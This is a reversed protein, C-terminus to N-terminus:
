WLEVRGWYPAFTLALADALDPSRVGRKALQRKDEVRMRGDSAVLLQPTSVEVALTDAHECCLAADQQIWEWLKIWLYAKMNAPQMVLGEEEPAREAANVCVVEYGQESLRTAVGAGLGISDVCYYQVGWERGYRIALGVVEMPDRQEVVVCRTVVSGQRCLLVTRDEGSWAVDIGMVVPADAEPERERVRAQEAWAFPVLSETSGSIEALYEQRFLWEPVKARRADIAAKDIRPNDYTTQRIAVWGERYHAERWLRAAWNEGKPVGLFLAWGGYDLLTADVYETWVQEDMLSFEDLVVGRVGEGALSDPRQATRLWVEGGGPFVVEAKSRRIYKEPSEGIGRWVQRAIGCLQRWARKMSASRWSIGVWWYLGPEVTVGRVVRLVGAVTKGWRRGAFVVQHRVRSEVIRQQVKSHPKPIPVRVRRITGLSGM